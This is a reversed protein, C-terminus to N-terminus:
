DQKPLSVLHTVGLNKMPDADKGSYEADVVLATNLGKRGGAVAIFPGQVAEMKMAISAVELAAKVESGHKALQKVLKQDDQLILDAKEVVTIKQKKMKKKTDDSYSFETVSIVNIKKGLAEKLNIATKGHHSATVITQTGYKEMGNRVTDYFQEKDKGDTYLVINDQSM